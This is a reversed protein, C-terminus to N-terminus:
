PCIRAVPAGAAWVDAFSSTILAYRPRLSPWTRARAAPRRRGRPPTRSSVTSSPTTGHRGPRAPRVDDAAVPRCSSAAASATPHEARAARGCRTIAAAVHSAVMGQMPASPSRAPAGPRVRRRRVEGHALVEIQAPVDHAIRGRQGRREIEHVLGERPQPLARRLPRAGEAAALALHQGHPPREHGPGPEEHEVLRRAPERGDQDALQHVLHVLDAGREARGDQEDLLVDALGEAHDVPDVHELETADDELVARPREQLRGTAARTGRSVSGLGYRGLCSAPIARASRRARRKGCERAIPTSDAM